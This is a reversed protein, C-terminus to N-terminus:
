LYRELKSYYLDVDSIWKNEAVTKISDQCGYGCKWIVMEKPTDVKEEAVLEDIRQAIVSVAQEPSDFCTHGGSGMREAKLRFGWYNYCDQGALVPHRKGWASEKKAIAVLFAATKPDQQLIYPVMKEIPYGAVMQKIELDLPTATKVKIPQQINKEINKEIAQTMTMATTVFIISIILMVIRSHDPNMNGLTFVGAKNKKPKNASKINNKTKNKKNM